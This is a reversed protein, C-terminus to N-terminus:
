RQPMILQPAKPLELFTEPMILQPAKPLKLFTERNIEEDHAKPSPEVNDNNSFADVLLRASQQVKEKSNMATVGVLARTRVGVSINM